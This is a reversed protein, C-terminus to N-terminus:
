PRGGPSGLERFRMIRRVVEDPDYPKELPGEACLESAKEAASAPSSALIVGIGPYRERVLRALEFGSMRPLTVETFVVDISHENELLTVAEEASGTEVVRYGCERLYDAIALRVVVDPEVVMVVAQPREAPIRQSEVAAM